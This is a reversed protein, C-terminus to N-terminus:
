VCPAFAGKDAQHRLVCVDLAFFLLIPAGVGGGLETFWRGFPPYWYHKTFTGFDAALFHRKGTSFGEYSWVRGVDIGQSPSSHLRENHEEVCSFALAQLPFSRYLNQPVRLKLIKKKKLWSTSIVKKSAGISYFDPPPAAGNLRRNKRRAQEQEVFTTPKQKRWEVAPEVAESLPSAPRKNVSRSHECCGDINARAEDEIQVPTSLLNREAQAMAAEMEESVLFADSDEDDQSGFSHCSPPKFYEVPVALMEVFEHADNHKLGSLNIHMPCDRAVDGSSSKYPPDDAEVQLSVVWTSEGDDRRHEWLLCQEVSSHPVEYVCWPPGGVRICTSQASCRLMCGERSSLAIDHAPAAGEALSVSCTIELGVDSPAEAHWEQSGAGDKESGAHQPRVDNVARLSALTLEASRIANDVDPSMFFEDSLM